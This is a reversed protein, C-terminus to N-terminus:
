YGRIRIKHEAYGNGAKQQHSIVLPATVIHNDGAMTPIVMPGSHFVLRYGYDNGKDTFHGIPLNKKIRERNDLSIVPNQGSSGKLNGIILASGYFLLL